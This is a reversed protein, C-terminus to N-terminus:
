KDPIDGTGKEDDEDLKGGKYEALVARRIYFVIFIFAVLGAVFLFLLMAKQNNLIFEMM